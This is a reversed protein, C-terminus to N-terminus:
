DIHAVSVISNVIMVAVVRCKQAARAIIRDNDTAPMLSERVAAIAVVANDSAQCIIGVTIPSNATM